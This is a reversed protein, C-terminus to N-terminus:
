TLEGTEVGKGLARFEAFSSGHGIRFVEEQDGGGGQDIHISSHEDTLSRWALGQSSQPLKGAALDLGSLRRFAAQDPFKIFLKPDRDTLRTQRGENKCGMTILRKVKQHWQEQTTAPFTEHRRLFM